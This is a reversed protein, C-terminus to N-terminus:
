EKLSMKPAWSPLGVVEEGMSAAHQSCAALVFSRSNVKGM